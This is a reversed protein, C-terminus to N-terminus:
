WSEQALRHRDASSKYPGRPFIRYGQLPAPALATEEEELLRVCPSGLEPWPSLGWRSTPHVTPRWSERQPSLQLSPWAVHAWVRGLCLAPGDTRLNRSSDRLPTAPAPGGARLLRPDWVLLPHSHPKGTRRESGCHASETKRPGLSSESTGPPWVIQ